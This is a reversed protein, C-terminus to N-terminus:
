AQNVSPNSAGSRTSARVTKSLRECPGCRLVAYASSRRSEEAFGVSRPARASRDAHAHDLAAGPDFRDGNALRPWARSHCRREHLRPLGRAVSKADAILASPLAQFAPNERKANEIMNTDTFGPCLATMTVGKGRLEEALAETLSLM